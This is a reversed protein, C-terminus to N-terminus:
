VHMITKNTSEDSHVERKEAKLGYLSRISTNGMGNRRNIYIHNYRIGKEKREVYNKQSPRTTQQLDLGYSEVVYVNIRRRNGDLLVM